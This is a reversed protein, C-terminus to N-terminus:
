VSSEGDMCWSVLALVAVWLLWRPLHIWGVLLEPLGDVLTTLLLAVLMALLLAILSM